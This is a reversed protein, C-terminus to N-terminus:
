RCLRAVRKLLPFSRLGGERGRERLWTTYHYPSIPVKTGWQGVGGGGGGRPPPPYVFLSAFFFILVL